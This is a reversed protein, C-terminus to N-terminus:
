LIGKMSAKKNERRANKPKKAKTAKTKGSKTNKPMKVVSVVKRKTPAIYARLIVDRIYNELPMGMPEFWGFASIPVDILMFGYVIFEMPLSLPKIIASYLFVDLGIMLLICLSQRLTFPGIVKTKYIRIDKPMKTEIM